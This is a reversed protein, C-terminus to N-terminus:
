RANSFQFPSEAFAAYIYVAGSQNFGYTDVCRLKFGNSLFDIAHYTPASNSEADSTNAFLYDSAVNYTPRLADWIQWNTANIQNSAVKALVYRPRFGLYVFPGDGTASGNGTYSGFASYGAIPAFAYMVMGSGSTNTWLNGLSVLTSTPATSNWFGSSTAVAGTSNLYMYGQTTSSYSRHWVVWDNAASRDKVIIMGPTVGLGHGVTANAGTGTYTVISFGATTNASVTSTISGATNTVGTGGAKWNWAVFTNGNSNVEEGSDAGLTFGNSNFSMLQDTVTAEAGTQNPRLRKNAGRVSDYENHSYAQNRIKIWVWDPQFDLGTINQTAGTGTYLVANFYDDGQNTLGFGIATAPLNTTCLSRFGTPPTYAFPRQGFNTTGSFSRGSGGDGNMYPIYTSYNVGTATYVSTNNKFWQVTGAVADIAVGIVDNTTCTSLGSAVQTGNVYVTGKTWRYGAETNGTAASFTQSSVGIRHENNTTASITFEWYWKGSNLLSTAYLFMDGVTQSLFAVDLNGNSLTVISSGAVAAPLAGNWTCYNGRFVGGVDGTTNYAFWPTPVDTLSDNGAGATVSFNNTTWNNANGSYDYGLTTTSTADKFNLYFGNTGYTGSYKLPIWQGTQPNTMGFSSPTLAQGDIFNVETLYCDSFNIYSGNYALGGIGGLRTNKNIVPDYNQTVQTTITLTQLVSNVYIKIRDAATALTTDVVLTVMYWASPDRFVAVTSVNLASASSATEQYNISNPSFQFMAYDVPSGTIGSTLMRISNGAANVKVWCNYTFKKNNTPTGFTRNLYASDASNFRLSKSIPNPVLAVPWNNNKIAAAQDDLTWNGSASTQTPTVQTKTIVKGPYDM